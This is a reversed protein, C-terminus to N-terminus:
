IFLDYNNNKIFYRLSKIEEKSIESCNEIDSFYKLKGCYKLLERVGDITLYRSHALSIDKLQKLGIGEGIIDKLLTDNLNTSIGINIKELNVCKGILIKLYYDEVTSHLALNLLKTNVPFKQSLFFEDEVFYCNYLRLTSLNPFSLIDKLSNFNLDEVHILELSRINSHISKLFHILGDMYYNGGWIVLDSVYNFRSTIVDAYSLLPPLPLFHLTMSKLNPAFHSLANLLYPKVYFSEVSIISGLKDHRTPIIEDGTQNIFYHLLEVLSNITLVRLETASELVDGLASCTLSTGSSNLEM